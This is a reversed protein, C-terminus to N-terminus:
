AVVIHMTSQDVQAIAAGAQTTVARVHMMRAAVVAGHVQAMRSAVVARRAKGIMPIVAVM